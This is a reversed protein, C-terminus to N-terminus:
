PSELIKKIKEALTEVSTSGIHREVEIGNKFFIFTPWARVEFANRLSDEVTIDVKCITIIDAFMLALEAVKKEMSICAGCYPSFFEVVVVGSGIKVVSDFNTKNLNVTYEKGTEEILKELIYYLSDVSIKGIIRLEPLELSKKFFLFQPLTTINYRTSLSIQQSTEVKYIYVKNEFQPLLTKVISDMYLSLSDQSNLFLVMAVKNNKLILSDFSISDLSPYDRKHITDSTDPSDISDIINLTDTTDSIQIVTDKIIKELFLALTDYFEKKNEFFSFQKTEIGNKFFIYTPVSKINFRKYLTDEDINNAGIFAKSNFNVYLSDIIWSLSQCLKCKESYFEIVAIRNTLLYSDINENTVVIAKQPKSSLDTVIPEKICKIFSVIFVIPFFIYCYKKM